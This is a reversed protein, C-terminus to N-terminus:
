VHVFEKFAIILTVLLVNIAGVKLAGLRSRGSQRGYLYGYEFLLLISSVKAITFATHLDWLGLASLVFALMPVTSGGFVYLSERFIHHREEEALERKKDIHAGIAETYAEAISISLLSAIITLAITWANSQTHELATLVATTIIIGYM